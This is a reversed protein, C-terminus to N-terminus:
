GSRVFNFVKMAHMVVLIIERSRPWNLVLVKEVNPQDNYYKIMEYHGKTPPKYGGPLLVLLKKEEEVQKM